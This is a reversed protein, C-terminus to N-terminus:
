PAPTDSGPTSQQEGRGTQGSSSGSALGSSDNPGSLGGITAQRKVAKKPPKPPVSAAAPPPTTTGTSTARPTVQPKKAYAVEGAAANTDLSKGGRTVTAVTNTTGSKGRIVSVPAAKLVSQPTAVTVVGSPFPVPPTLSDTLPGLAILGAVSVGALAGAPIWARNM